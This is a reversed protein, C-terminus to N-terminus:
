NKVITYTYIPSNNLILTITYNGAEDVAIDSGDKKLSNILPDDLGYNIDWADNARFKFVGAELDTTVEWVNDDVNYTM